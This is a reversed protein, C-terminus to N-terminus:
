SFAAPFGTLMDPSASPPPSVFVDMTLMEVEEPADRIPPFHRIFTSQNVGGEAEVQTSSQRSRRIV